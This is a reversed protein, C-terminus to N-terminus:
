LDRLRVHRNSGRQELDQASDGIRKADRERGTWGPYGAQRQRQLAPILSM